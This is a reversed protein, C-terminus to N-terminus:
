AVEGPTADGPTEDDSIASLLLRLRRVERMEATLRKLTTLHLAVDDDRIKRLRLLDERLESIHIRQLVCAVVMLGVMIVMTLAVAAVASM